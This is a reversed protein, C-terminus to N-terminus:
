SRAENTSVVLSRREDVAAVAGRPVLVTTDVDDVLAPGPITHGPVLHRALHVAVDTSRHRDLHVARRQHPTPSAGAAAREPATPIVARTPPGAGIARLGGLEIPTEMMLAGEGYRRTYRRVFAKGVVAPDFGPAEFPVALDFEQRFFRVDAEFAVSREGAPVGDGALDQDVRAALAVLEAEIEPARVEQLLVDVPHRRERRVRASAAGLASLVSAAEPVIVTPIALTRAISPTFLSGSGGFTVLVMEQPDHGGAAIKARAARVMDALAIERIGWAAEIAGLGVREGLRGCVTLAAAADLPMTGGLFTAPDIYGLVVLADTVTPETGGRGYCAPGPDAGASRPGVRILDRGDVWAVSGGGSGVSEVDVSPQALVHGHAEGRQRREPDGAVVLSVDFSTGGMDCSLADPRGTAKLVEAAAAVGAAPGSGLLVLPQHALEEITITGGTAQVLLLPAQLGRGALAAALEEIGALSRACLANFVALTTREYERKAPRLEAGSFVPVDPLEARVLEVARSEHAPHKFSWLFSVALAEVGHDLILEEAAAVVEDDDLPERIADDRAIREHIGRIRDPDLPTWPPHLFGDVSLRRGRAALAHWEFGATTLLGVRAGTRTALANTVVTTGLGFREARRLIAELPEGVEGAVQELAALVGRGFDGPDTPSKARWSARGDSVFADTFTGGVDIGVALSEDTM